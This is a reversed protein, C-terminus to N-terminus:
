AGPEGAAEIAWADAAYGNWIEAFEEATIGEPLEWGERRFNELDERAEEETIMPASIFYADFLAKVFERKDM